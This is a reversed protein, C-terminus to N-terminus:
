TADRWTSIAPCGSPKLDPRYDWQSSFEVPKALYDPDELTGEYNMHRRDETM